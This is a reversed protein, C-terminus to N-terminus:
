VDYKEMLELPTIGINRKFDRIFHPQDYYSTETLVDIPRTKQSVLIDLCKQFRLISLAMKPTIGFHKDFLRQCQRPSFHLLQYLDAATAPPQQSLQGFLQTFADPRLGHILRQCYDIFHRKARPFPLSFFFAQDFSSDIEALPIFNDMAGSAPLGTLQHFAGPLLRAGLYYAPLQVSFHFETRSMGGFGIQKENFNVILDICGDTVIVHDITKTQASRPLMEWFCIVFDGLSAVTQESYCIHKTFEDYLIYPIQIPYYM